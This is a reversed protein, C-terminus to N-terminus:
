GYSPFVTSSLAFTIMLRFLLYIVLPLLLFQKPALHVKCRYISMLHCGSRFLLHLIMSTLDRRNRFLLHLIMSTLDRRNRVLFGLIMSTVERGSRFLLCLIRRTKLYQYRFTSHYLTGELCATLVHLGQRSIYTYIYTSLYTLISTPLHTHICIHSYAPIHTPLHSPLYYTISAFCRFYNM